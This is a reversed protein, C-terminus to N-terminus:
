RTGEAEDPGINEKNDEGYFEEDSEENFEDDSEENFEDESFEDDSDEEIAEESYEEEDPDEYISQYEESNEERVATREYLEFDEGFHQRLWHLAWQEIQASGRELIRFYVRAKRELSDLTRYNQWEFDLFTVLQRRTDGVRLANQDILSQIASDDLCSALMQSREYQEEPTGKTLWVLRM